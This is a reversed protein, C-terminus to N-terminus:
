GFRGYRRSYGHLLLVRGLRKGSKFLQSEHNAIYEIAQQEYEPERFYLFLLFTGIYAM